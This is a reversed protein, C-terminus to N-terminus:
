IKENCEISTNENGDHYIIVYIVDGRFHSGNGQSGNNCGALTLCNWVM